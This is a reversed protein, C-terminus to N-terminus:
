LLRGGKANEIFKNKQENKIQAVDLDSLTLYDGSATNYFLYGNSIGHKDFVNNIVRDISDNLDKRWASWMAESEWQWQIEKPVHM